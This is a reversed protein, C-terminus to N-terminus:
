QFGQLYNEIRKLNTVLVTFPNLLINTYWIHNAFIFTSMLKKVTKKRGEVFLILEDQEEVKCSFLQLPCELQFLPASM